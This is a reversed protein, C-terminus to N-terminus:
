ALADIAYSIKKNVADFILVLRYARNSTTNLIYLKIGNCQSTPFAKTGLATGAPDSTVSTLPYVSSGIPSDYQGICQQTSGVLSQARVLSASNDWWLLLEDRTIKQTMDMTGNQQYFLNMDREAWTRSKDM